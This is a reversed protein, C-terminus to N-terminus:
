AYDDMFESEEEMLSITRSRNAGSAFCIMYVRQAGNELLIKSCEDLTSGTTFIDDVLLICKDQIM